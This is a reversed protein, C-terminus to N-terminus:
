GLRRVMEPLRRTTGADKRHKALLRDYYRVQDEARRVQLLLFQEERELRELEASAADRAERLTVERDPGEVPSPRAMM